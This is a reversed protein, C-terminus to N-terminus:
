NQDIDGSGTIKTNITSPNGKYDIDGSGTVKAKLKKTSVVEVDGSGTVSAETNSANLKFGHFDGSGTVSAELDETNGTLTLDGSGTVKAKISKAQVDLIIDGSGSVSTEFRNEKITDKSTIDGSGTLTVKDISKFPITITITNNRSTKLTTNNETKIILENGKVEVVIYELLNEEGKITIKGETGEELVFDMWGACKISDYDSTTKTITTITGNGKITKNGWLQAQATTTTIVACIILISQKLYNM